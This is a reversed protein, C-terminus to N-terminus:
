FCYQLLLVRHIELGGVWEGVWWNVAVWWNVTSCCGCVQVLFERLGVYTLEGGFSQAYRAEAYALARQTVGRSTLYDLLSM